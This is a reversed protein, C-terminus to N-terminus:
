HSSYKLGFNFIKKQTFGRANNQRWSALEEDWLRKSSQESNVELIVCFSWFGYGYLLFFFMKEYNISFHLQNWMALKIKVTRRKLNQNQKLLRSPSSTQYYKWGDKSGLFSVQTKGIQAGFPIWKLSNSPLSDLFHESKLTSPQLDLLKDSYSGFM